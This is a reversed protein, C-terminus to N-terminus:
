NSYRSFPVGILYFAYNRRFILVTANSIVKRLGLL